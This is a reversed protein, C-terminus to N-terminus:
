DMVTVYALIRVQEMGQEVGTIRDNAAPVVRGCDERPAALVSFSCKKEFKNSLISIGCLCICSNGSIDRDFCWIVFGKSQLRLPSFCINVTWDFM